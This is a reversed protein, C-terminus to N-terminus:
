RKQNNLENCDKCLRYGGGGPKRENVPIDRGPICASNNHHVRNAEPKKIENVSYFAPMLPM